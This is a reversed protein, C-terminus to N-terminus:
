SLGEFVVVVPDLRVVIATHVKLKASLAQCRPRGGITNGEYTTGDSGYGM